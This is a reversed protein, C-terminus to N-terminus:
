SQRAPELLKRHQRAKLPEPLVEAVIGMLRSKLSGAYLKHRGSMMARFGQAAVLSPDDKRQQGVKTDEIDARRFFNTDTPGPQLATVTVGSDGLENRLAEAFGLDFAKTAGYVALLPSPMVAAVSSTILIRGSKREKMAPTVRKAIHVVADCNLRIMRLEAQLSTEDSFDGGVGVGANLVLADVPRGMREIEGCLSEVGEYTALDTEFPHVDGGVRRLVEAADFIKASDAVILVDFGHRLCERALEFGIGSSAGTVVALKKDRNAEM